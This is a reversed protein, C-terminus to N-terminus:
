TKISIHNSSLIVNITSDKDMLIKSLLEVPKKPLIYQGESQDNNINATTKAMRHGDTAVVILQENQVDFLIGNLYKRSDNEGKAHVVDKILTKLQNQQICIETSNQSLDIFPFQGAPLTVLQFRSNGTTIM